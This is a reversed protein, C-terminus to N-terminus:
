NIVPSFLIKHLCSGVLESKHNMLAYTNYFGKSMFVSKFYAVVAEDSTDPEPSICIYAELILSLVNTILIAHFLKHAHFFLYLKLPGNCEDTGAIARFYLAAAVGHLSLATSLSYHLSQFHDNLSDVASRHHYLSCYLDIFSCCVTTFIITHPFFSRCCVDNHAM